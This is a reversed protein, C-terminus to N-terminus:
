FNFWIDLKGAIKPALDKGLATHGICYGEPNEENLSQLYPKHMVM